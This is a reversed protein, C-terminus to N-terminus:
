NVLRTDAAAGRDQGYGRVARDCVARSEVRRADRRGAYGSGSHGGTDGPRGRRKDKYRRLYELRSIHDTIDNENPKARVEVGVSYKGNELLIGFEAEVRGIEPNHFKREKATDEFHYNLANFKQVINPIVLHEVLEGFRNSVDGMNTQIEKM